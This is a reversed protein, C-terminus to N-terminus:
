HRNPDGKPYNQDTFHEKSVNGESDIDKSSRTNSEANWNTSHTVGKENDTVEHFGYKPENEYQAKVDLDIKSYDIDM